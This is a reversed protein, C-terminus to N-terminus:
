QDTREIAMGVVASGRPVSAGAPPNQSVIEGDDGSSSAVPRFVLGLGIQEPRVLDPHAPPPDRFDNINFGVWNPVVVLEPQAPQADKRAPLLNLDPVPPAPTVLACARFDRICKAAEKSYANLAAALDDRMANLNVGPVGPAPKVFQDPNSSIFEVDNLNKQLRNRQRFCDELTDKQNQLDVFTPNPPLDLALYDQLLVKCTVGHDGASKRFNVAKDIM